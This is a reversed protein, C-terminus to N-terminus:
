CCFLRVVPLKIGTANSKTQAEVYKISVSTRRRRRRHSSRYFIFVPRGHVLWGGWSLNAEKDQNQLKRGDLRVGQKARVPLISDCNVGRWISPVLSIANMWSLVIFWGSVNLFKGPKESVLYSSNRKITPFIDEEDGEADAETSPQAGM